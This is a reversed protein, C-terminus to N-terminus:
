SKRRLGLAALGLVMLAYTSPEPVPSLVTLFTSGQILASNAIGLTPSKIVLTGGANTLAGGQQTNGGLDISAGSNVVTILTAPIKSIALSGKGADININSGNFYTANFLAGVNFNINSLPTNLSTTDSVDLLSGPILSIATNNQLKTDRLLFSGDCSARYGNDLSIVLNSSCSFSLSTASALPPLLAIGLSIAIATKTTTILMAYGKKHKIVHYTLM